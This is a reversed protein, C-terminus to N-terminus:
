FRLKVAFQMVRQVSFVTTIQANGANGAAAIGSGPLGYNPHNLLNFVEGRFDLQYRETLPFTKSIGSDLSFGKPGRLINYGSNGEHLLAGPTTPEVPTAFCSKDFWNFVTPNPLVGSCIRDPRDAVHFGNLLLLDTGSLTPTFPFGSRRTLISTLQWGGIIQNLVGGHNLFRKGKGFPLQWIPSIVINNPLDDETVGKDNQPYRPDSLGNRVAMNKSHTYSLVFGLGGRMRRELRVQLSEYHSTDENYFMRIASFQPFAQVQKQGPALVVGWPQPLNFRTQIGGSFSVGDLHRGMSGVYSVSINTDRMLERELAVNWQYSGPLRRRPFSANTLSPVPASAGALPNSLLLPPPDTGSPPRTFTATTRLDIFPFGEGDETDADGNFYGYFMGGGARLVTKDNMKWAVGLRPQFDRKESVMCNSPLGVDGCGVLSNPIQAAVSPIVSPSLQGDGTQAIAIKGTFEGNSLVPLSYYPPDAHFRTTYEYRLGITLTLSPSIRWSDNAYAAWTSFYKHLAPIASGREFHSMDGLLFDAMADGATCANNVTGGPCFTTAVTPFNRDRTQAGNFYFRGTSNENNTTVLNTKRIDGGFKLTHRGRTVTLNDVWQFNHEGVVLPRYDGSGLNVSGIQFHPLGHLANPDLFQSVGLTSAWDSTDGKEYAQPDTLFGFRFENIVTPSFGHFWGVSLNRGGLDAREFGVISGQINTALPGDGALVNEGDTYRGFFTNKASLNYDLRINYQNINQRHAPDYFYNNTPDIAFGAKNVQNIGPLNPAPLVQSVVKAAIPNWRSSPITNNLFPQGTTPDFIIIGSPFIGQRMDNSPVTVTRPSSYVERMGEYNFFYFLKERKIPGGFTGGFQNRKLRSTGHPGTFTWQTADFKDNRIFEYLSGHMQNTGSKVVVDVQAPSRGYEASFNATQLKVEQIADISIPINAGGFERETNEIGDIRFMTFQGNGGNVDFAQMGNRQRGALNPDANTFGATRTAPSAGPVLVLLQTFSRGNLPLDTVQQSQIVAGVSAEESQLIPPAATVTVQENAVGVALEINVGAQQDINLNISSIRKPQFGNATADITYAGPILNPVYYLGAENTTTEVVVGTAVSTVKVTVGPVIAGSSDQVTGTLTANGSQASVAAAFLCVCVLLKALVKM